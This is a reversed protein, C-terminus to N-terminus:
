SRSPAVEAGASRRVRRARPADPARKSPRSPRSGHWSTAYSLCRATATAARTGCWPWTTAPCTSPRRQGCSAARCASSASRFSRAAIRSPWLLPPVALFSPVVVSVRRRLGREALVADLAGLSSGRGSVVIHPHRLWRSLTLPLAPHGERLVVVYRENLMTRFRLNSPAPVSVALDLSGAELAAHADDAGSWPLCVLDIGPAREALSALLPGIFAAVGYDAVSLRVTQEVGALPVAPSSEVLALVGRRLEGLPDRLARARATLELGRPSRELLPDDFM